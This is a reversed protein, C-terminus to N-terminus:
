KDAYILFNKDDYSNLECLEIAKIGYVRQAIEKASDGEVQPKIKMGILFCLRELIKRPSCFINKGPKLISSEDVSEM